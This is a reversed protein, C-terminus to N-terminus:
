IKPATFGLARLPEDSLIETSFSYIKGKLKVKRGGPVRIKLGFSKYISLGSDPISWGGDKIFVRSEDDTPIEKVTPSLVQEQAYLVHSGVGQVLIFSAMILLTRFSRVRILSIM